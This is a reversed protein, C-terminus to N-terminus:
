KEPPYKKEENQSHKLITPLYLLLSIYGFFGFFIILVYVVPIEKSEIVKHIETSNKFMEDTISHSAQLLGLNFTLLLLYILLAITSLYPWVVSYSKPHRYAIYALASIFALILGTILPEIIM